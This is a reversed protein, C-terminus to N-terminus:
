GLRCERSCEDLDANGAAVDLDANGAASMWTQMGQQVLGLRCERSCVDLDANGAASM